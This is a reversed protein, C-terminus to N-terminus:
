SDNNKTDFRPALDGMTQMPAPQVKDAIQDVSQLVKLAEEFEAIQEAGYFDPDEQMTELRFELTDDHALMYRIADFLNELTYNM